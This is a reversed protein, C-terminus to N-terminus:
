HVLYDNFFESKELLPGRVCNTWLNTRGAVYRGRAFGENRWVNVKGYHDNYSAKLHSNVGFASVIM